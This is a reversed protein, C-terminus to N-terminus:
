ASGFCISLVALLTHARAKGKVFGLSFPKLLGLHQWPPTLKAMDSLQVCEANVGVLLPEANTLFGEKLIREALEQTLAHDPDLKMSGAREFSLAALPVLCQPAGPDDARRSEPTASVTWKHEATRGLAYLERVFAMKETADAYRQRLYGSVSGFKQQVGELTQLVKETLDEPGGKEAPDPLIAEQWASDLTAVDSQAPVESTADQAMIYLPKCGLSSRVATARRRVSGGLM